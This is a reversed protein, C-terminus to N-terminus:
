LTLHDKTVVTCVDNYVHANHGMSVHRKFCKPISTLSWYNANKILKVYVNLLTHNDTLLYYIDCNFIIKNPYLLNRDM